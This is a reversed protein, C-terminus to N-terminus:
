EMTAVSTILVKSFGEFYTAWRGGWKSLMILTIEAPLIIVDVLHILLTNSNCLYFPSLPHMQMNVIRFLHYKHKQSSYLNSSMQICMNTFLIICFHVVHPSICDAQRYIIVCKLNLDVTHKHLRISTSLIKLYVLQNIVLLIVGPVVSPAWACKM